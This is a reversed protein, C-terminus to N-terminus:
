SIVIHNGGRALRIAVGFYVKPISEAFWRIIPTYYYRGYKGYIGYNIDATKDQFLYVSFLTM